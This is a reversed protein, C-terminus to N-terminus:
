KMVEVGFKNRIEEIKIPINAMPNMCLPDTQYLTYVGDKFIFMDFKVVSEPPDKEWGPSVTGLNNVYGYTGDPIYPLNM